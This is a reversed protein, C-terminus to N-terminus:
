DLMVQDTSPLYPYKQDSLHDHVRLLFVARAHRSMFAALPQAAAVGGLAVSKRGTSNALMRKM